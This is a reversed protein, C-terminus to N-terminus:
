TRSCLNGPTQSDSRYVTSTGVPKINIAANHVTLDAFGERDIVLGCSWALTRDRLMLAHLRKCGSCVQTTRTFRDIQIVQKDQM